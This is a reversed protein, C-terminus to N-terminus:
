QGAPPAPPAPPAASGLNPLQNAVYVLVTIAVGIVATAYPPLGLQPGAGAVIGLVGTVIALVHVINQTLTNNM